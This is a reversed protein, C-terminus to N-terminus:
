SEEQERDAPSYISNGPPISLWCLQIGTTGMGSLAFKNIVQRGPM